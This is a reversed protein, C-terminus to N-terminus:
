EVVWCDPCEIKDDAEFSESTMPNGCIFCNLTIGKKDYISLLIQWAEDLTKMAESHTM